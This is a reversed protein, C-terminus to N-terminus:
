FTESDLSEIDQKIKERCFKKLSLSQKTMEPVIVNRIWNRRSGKIVVNTEDEVVHNQPRMNHNFHIPGVNYGKQKLFFFAALSDVGMSVSVYMKTAKSPMIEGILNIM